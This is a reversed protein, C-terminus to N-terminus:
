EQLEHGPLFTHTIDGGDFADGKIDLLSLDEAQETGVACAFGGGDRDKGRKVGGGASVRQDAPMRHCLFRHSDFATM